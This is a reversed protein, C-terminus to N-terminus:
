FSHASTEPWGVLASQVTEVVMEPREHVDAWTFRLLRWGNLIASRDRFRDSDFAQAQSHWRRSDWEVALEAEPFAVDFRRTPSWPIPYETSFSVLGGSRLLDNGAHELKSPSYDVGLRDDLINRLKRVGPKGRRAVDDLVLRIGGLSLVRAATNDDIVTALHASTLLASLDVVTRAATTVPIGRLRTTHWEFLDHARRVDVGPFSHTTQSHVLVSVRDVNLKTFHHMAAASQHSAVAEPLIAVAARLLNQPGPIEFLRYAGRGISEWRHTRLRNAIQHASLGSDLAQRRKLVGGQKSALNSANTDPTMLVIHWASM